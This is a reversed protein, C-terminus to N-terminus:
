RALSGYAARAAFVLMVYRKTEVFGIDSVFLEPDAAKSIWRQVNDPGGNYAALAMEPSKLKEMLSSWYAAGLRISIAPDYLNEVSLAPMGISAAVAGATEPIFQMLGRASAGSRSNPNYRSEQWIIAHLWLPDIKYTGAAECILKRYGDPYLLTLTSDSRPLRDAFSISRDYRGGLYAIEAAPRRPIRTDSWNMWLAAEDWLQLFILESVADAAPDLETRLPHRLGVLDTEFNKLAFDRESSCIDASNRIPDRGLKEAARQGYYSFEERALKLWIARAAAQKGLKSQCLAQFYQVEETMASGPASRLKMRGLQQFIALAAAYRKENYLIKAKTFLFVQRTSVSLQTSLARDLVALAKRNEGLVRYVDILNRTAAEKMGTRGYKQIYDIYAKESNRYDALRWYCSAIQYESEKEWDSGPFDKALSRYDEMALQYNEQQFHIRGIRFRADPGYVPDAAAQQYLPLANEFQRHNAFIEAVEMLDAPTNAIGAVSHAADLAVDDDKGERILAWIAASDQLASARAYRAERTSLAQHIQLAVSGGVERALQMKLEPPFNRPLFGLFEMTAADDRLQASARAAHWSAAAYLPNGSRIQAFEQKARVWDGQNEAIRGRLYHFNNAEFTAPEEVSAQDLAAAAATWDNNRLGVFARDITSEFPTTALVFLLTLVLSM